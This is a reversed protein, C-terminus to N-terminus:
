IRDRCLKLEDRQLLWSSSNMRSALVEESGGDSVEERGDM